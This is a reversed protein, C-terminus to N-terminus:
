RRKERLLRHILINVALAVSLLIVGLFVSRAFEGKSTELAIYTTMTRTFEKINGGLMLASGIEAIVRGFGSAVAALIGARTESLVALAAQWTNAGLTQATPRVRTDVEQTAAYTLATIIPLALIVQGIIIAFPTYLLNFWGLWGSRSIQAYVFLGVVVTPLSFLTNMITVVIRKGRFERAALSLGLPVGILAAIATAFLSVRLSLGVINFVEIDLIGKQEKEEELPYGTGTTVALPHFLIQGYRKYSGILAQGEPSTLWAIFRMAGHYNIEPFRAPNVAIVSYPNALEGAGEFLLDLDLSEKLALYTARDCLTYARKEDAVRLGADMGQGIELYRSAPPRASFKEWLFKEKKHTGSEDGRSIFVARSDEAIVRVADALERCKKLGAPDEPPGVLIFDNQMVLRRNVGFGAEMFAREAAPAHVLMVDVDGNEALKLAKGTGVAIVDLKLGTKKEFRPLLYELLGSNETSTTTALRLREFEEANATGALSLICLLCAVFSLRKLATLREAKRICAYFRAQRSSHAM